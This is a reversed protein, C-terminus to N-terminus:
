KTIDYLRKRNRVKVVTKAPVKVVEGTLPNRANHSKRKVLEFKIFEPFAVENGAELQSVIADRLSLYVDRMDAQSLFRSGKHEHEKNFENRAVELVDRYNVSKKAAM